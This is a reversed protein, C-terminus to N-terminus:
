ISMTKPLPLAAQSLVVESYAVPTKLRKSKTKLASSLIAIFRLSIQAMLASSAIVQAQRNLWQDVATDGLESQISSIQMLVSGPDFSPYQIEPLQQTKNKFSAPAKKYFFDDLEAKISRHLTNLFIEILNPLTLSHKRIFAKDSVRHSQM